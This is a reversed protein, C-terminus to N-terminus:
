ESCNNPIGPERVTINSAASDIERLDDPTLEIGLRGSTRRWAICSRRGPIPVIWPKQALLWALAIQAPTANKKQRSRCRAISWRKIPRGHRRRLARSSTASTAATSIDHERRDQGYSLGQGAPQVSRLRNRTRRADAPDGAEPERWWLSYESQLAAVPQVAHARRITRM